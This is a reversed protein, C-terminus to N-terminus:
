LRKRLVTVRTEYLRLTGQDDEYHWAATEHRWAAYGLREYLARARPNDDEVSLMAWPLGRQRIRREAEAILCTGLGLSQLQSHTALQWLTGATDHQTYDIGGKAVPEGGPARVVLYEVEGLAVRGLARAVSRLHAPNGSWGLRALDERCLDDVVLAGPGATRVICRVASIVADSVGESRTGV